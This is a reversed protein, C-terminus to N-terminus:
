VSRNYKFDCCSLPLGLPPRSSDSGDRALRPLSRLSNRKAIAPEPKPPPDTLLKLKRIAPIQAELMEPSIGCRQAFNACLEDAHKRLLKNQRNGVSLGVNILSLLV